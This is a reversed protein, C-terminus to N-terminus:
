KDQCDVFLSVSVGYRQRGMLLARFEFIMSCEVTRCKASRVTNSWDLLHRDVYYQLVLNVHVLKSTIPARFAVECSVGQVTPSTSYYRSITTPTLRPVFPVHLLM